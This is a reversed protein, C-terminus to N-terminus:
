RVSDPLSKWIPHTGYCNSHQFVNFKLASIECNQDDYSATANDNATCSARRGCLTHFVATIYLM